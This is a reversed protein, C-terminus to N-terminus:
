YYREYCEIDETQSKLKVNQTLIFYKSFLQFSLLLLLLKLGLYFLLIFIRCNLIVTNNM